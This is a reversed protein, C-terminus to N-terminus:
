RHAAATEASGHAGAFFDTLRRRKATFSELDAVIGGSAHCTTCHNSIALARGRDSDGASAAAFPMWRRLGMGVALNGIALRPRMM